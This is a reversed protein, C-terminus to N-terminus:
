KTELELKYYIIDYSQYDDDGFSGDETDITKVFHGTDVTSLDTIAIKHIRPEVRGFRAIVIRENGKLQVMEGWKSYPEQVFFGERFQALNVGRVINRHTRTNINIGNHIRTQIVM